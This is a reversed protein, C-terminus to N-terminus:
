AAIRSQFHIFNQRVSQFASESVAFGGYWAYEFQRTIKFFPDYLSQGYLQLLYDSNTRGLKYQILEKESLEKLTQLYLLRIALRYNHAIIAKEIEAEYAITYINETEQSEEETGILKPRKRFLRVDSAILFWIIAGIFGSIIIVWLLISFWQNKLLTNWFSGSKQEKPKEPTTNVYWFDKDSRLKQLAEGRVHRQSVPQRDANFVPNFYNATDEEVTDYPDIVASDIAQADTIAPFCLLCVLLVFSRQFLASRM